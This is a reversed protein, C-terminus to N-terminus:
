REGERIDGTIPDIALCELPTLEPPGCRVGWRGGEATRQLVITGDCQDSAKLFAQLGAAIEALPKGDFTLPQLAPYHETEDKVAFDLTQEATDVRVQAQYIRESGLLTKQTEVFDLNVEGRFSTLESCAGVFSFFTPYARPLVEEIVLQANNIVLDIDVADSGPASVTIPRDTQQQPAGGSCALVSVWVAALAIMFRSTQSGDSTNM